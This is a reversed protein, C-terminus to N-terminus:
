QNRNGTYASLFLHRASPDVPVMADDAPTDVSARLTAAPLKKIEDIIRQMDINLTPNSTNLLVGQELCQIAASFEDQLLHVLGSGFRQLPHQMDMQALPQLMEKARIAEGSSVLLIGLQLRATSLSPDIALAATMEEIARPLMKLQAYEAGLLFHAGATADARSTAEKLCGLATANDSRESATLAVQMLETQDLFSLPTNTM